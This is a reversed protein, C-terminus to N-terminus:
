APEERNAATARNQKVRFEALHAVLDSLTWGDGWVGSERWRVMPIAALRACLLDHETRVDDLLAQKSKYRM